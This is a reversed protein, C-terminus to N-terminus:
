LSDISFVLIFKMGGAIYRYAQSLHVFLDYHQSLFSSSLSYSETTIQSFPSREATHSAETTSQASAPNQLQRIPANQQM